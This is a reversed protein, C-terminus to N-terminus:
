SGIGPQGGEQQFNAAMGEFMIGAAEYVIEEDLDKFRTIVEVEDDNEETDKVERNEDAVDEFEEPVLGISSSRHLILDLDQQDRIQVLGVRRSMLVVRIIKPKKAVASFLRLPSHRCPILRRTCQAAPSFIRNATVSFIRPRIM